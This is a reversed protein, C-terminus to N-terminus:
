LFGYATTVNTITLDPRLLRRVNVLQFRTNNNENEGENINSASDTQVYVYYNGSSAIASTPITVNQIRNVSTGAALGGSLSFTGLLLDSGVQNDASFYVRESFTGAAKNGANTSTWEM